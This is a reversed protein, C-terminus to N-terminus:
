ILDVIEFHEFYHQRYFNYINNIEDRYLPNIFENKIRFSVFEMDGGFINRINDFATSYFGSICKPVKSTNTLYCEIPIDLRKVTLNLEDAIFRLKAPPEARHSFYILEQDRFYEIIRKLYEIYLENKMIPSEYSYDLETGLFYVANSETINSAHLKLYNYNNKVIKGGGYSKLDYLTFYNMKTIPKLNMGALRKLFFKYSNSHGKELIDIGRKRTKFINITANGDDLAYLTEFKCSNVFHRMLDLRYDGIFLYGITGISKLINKIYRLSILWGIKTESPMPVIYLQDWENVDIVKALQLQNIANGGQFICLTCDEPKFRFYHKAEIANLM